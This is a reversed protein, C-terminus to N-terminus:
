TGRFLAHGGEGGFEEGFGLAALGLFEEGKAAAGGARPKSRKSGAM